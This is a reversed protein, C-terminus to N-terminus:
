PRGRRQRAPAGAPAGRTGRRTSSPSRLARGLERRATLWSRSATRWSTRASYASIKRKGVPRVAPGACRARGVRLRSAGVGVIASGASTWTARRARRPRRRRDQKGAPRERGAARRSGRRGRGRRVPHDSASRPSFPANPIRTTPSREPSTAVNLPSSRRRRSVKTPCALTISSFPRRSRESASTVSRFSRSRWWAKWSPERAERVAREEGLADLSRQGVARAGGCHQEEVEVVELRDVVRETMRDAVLHEGLYSTAHRAHTREPSVAARSPPSSNATRRSDISRRPVSTTASDRRLAIRRGNSSGPRSATILALM